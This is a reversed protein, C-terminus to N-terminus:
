FGTELAPVAFELHDALTPLRGDSCVINSEFTYPAAEPNDSFQNIVAIGLALGLAQKIHHYGEPDNDEHDTLSPLGQVFLCNEPPMWLFQAHELQYPLGRHSIVIPGTPWARTTRRLSSHSIHNHSYTATFRILGPQDVTKPQFKVGTLIGVVDGTNHWNQETVDILKPIVTYYNEISPSRTM